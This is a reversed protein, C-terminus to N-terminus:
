GNTKIDIASDSGERSWEDPKVLYDQPEEVPGSGRDHEPAQKTENSVGANYGHSHEQTEQRGQDDSFSVTKKNPTSCAEELVDGAWPRCEKM